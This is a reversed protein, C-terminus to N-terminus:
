LLIRVIARENKPLKTYMYWMMRVYDTFKISRVTQQGAPNQIYVQM